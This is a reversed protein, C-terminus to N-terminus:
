RRYDSVIEHFLAVGETRESNHESERVLEIYMDKAMAKWDVDGRCSCKRDKTPASM